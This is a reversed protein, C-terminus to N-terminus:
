KKKIEMYVLPITFKLEGNKKALINLRNELETLIAEQKDVDIVTKWSPLFCMIVFYSNLFASGSAFRMTQKKEICKVLEFGESTFMRELGNVTARHNIHIKLVDMAENDNMSGLTQEFVDYFEEFTGVLNSTLILKGDPKLLRHCEKIVAVPHDFNNIGLNSTIIDVSLSELNIHNASGSLLTVNSIQRAELKRATLKIAEEWIDVGILTCTDGFREALEVLPFGTGYGIDVITQNLAMPIHELLLNGPLSSWVSFDDFTSVIPESQWDFIRNLDHKM